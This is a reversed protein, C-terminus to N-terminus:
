GLVPMFRRNKGPSPSAGESDVSSVAGGSTKWVSGREQRQPEKQEVGAKIFRRNEDIGKGSM